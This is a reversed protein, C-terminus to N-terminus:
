KEHLFVILVKKSYSEPSNFNTLCAIGRKSEGDYRIMLKASTAAELQPRYMPFRQMGCKEHLHAMQSNRLDEARSLIPIQSSQLRHRVLCEVPRGHLM